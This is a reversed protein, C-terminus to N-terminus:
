PCADYNECGISLGNGDIGCTPFPAAPPMENLFLYRLLAIPDVLNLAQDDTVDVADLCEPQASVGTLFQLMFIADTFELTGSINADGRIFRPECEDPIGNGNTDLSTGAALDCDDPLGNENCDVECEDPIGNSNCDLSAGSALDCVDPQGNGNCDTEDVTIEVLQVASTSNGYIDTATWTVQTVGYQYVGSADSTGTIDNVLTALECNDAVAPAAVMVNAFCVAEEAPHIQDPAAVLVPAETDEITVTFSASSSNGSSDTATYTVTTTGVPFLDGPQHDSILSDTACNDTASPLAWDVLKGCVGSDNTSTIDAPLDVIQPNQTDIVTVVFSAVTENGSSDIATYLVEESGLQFVDGSNHSSLLEAIACNDAASPADWLVVASCLGAEAEIVLDTSLNSIVPVEDDTVTVMFSSTIQNGHLDIATYTVETDGLPFFDGSLSTSSLSEVGCNDAATPETWTAIAGCEGPDNTLVLNEPTGLISPQDQDTVTITFFASHINGHIDTAVYTVDTTGVPFVDGSQFDSVVEAIECNDAATVEAWTVVASCEGLDNTVMLDPSLGVIEPM